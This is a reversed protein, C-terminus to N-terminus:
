KLSFENYKSDILQQNINAMSTKYDDVGSLISLFRLHVCIYFLLISKKM